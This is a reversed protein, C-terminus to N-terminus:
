MDRASGWNPFRQDQYYYYQSISSDNNGPCLTLPISAQVCRSCQDTQELERAVGQLLCCVMFHGDVAMYARKAVAKDSGGLEEDLVEAGETFDKGFGAVAVLFPLFPHTFLNYSMM